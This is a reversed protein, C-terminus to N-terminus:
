GTPPDCTFSPNNAPVFWSPNSGMTAMWQAQTVEYRGMYFAKTLTVEHARPFSDIGTSKGMMFTGAPVLLMEIGTENDQVRWPFGSTIIANQMTVNTVVAPNVTQELVTMQSYGEATKAVRFGIIGSEVGTFASWPPKNSRFWATLSYDGNFKFAGGRIVRESPGTTPGTPDTVSDSTFDAYRDQCWEVVNGAMDHLGLGNAFKGGVPKTSDWPISNQFCWAINVINNM